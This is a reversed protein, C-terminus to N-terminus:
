WVLRRAQRLKGLNGGLMPPQHSLCLDAIIQQHRSQTIGVPDATVASTQEQTRAASVAIPLANLPTHPPLGHAATM